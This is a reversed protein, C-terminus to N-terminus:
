SYFYELKQCYSVMYISDIDYTSKMDQHFGDHQLDDLCAYNKIYEEVSIFENGPKSNFEKFRKYFDYIKSNVSQKGPTYLRFIDPFSYTSSHTILLTM